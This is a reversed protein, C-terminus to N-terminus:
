ILKVYRARWYAITNDSNNWVFKITNDSITASFGTTAGGCNSIRYGTGSKSAIYKTVFGNNSNWQQASITIEWADGDTLTPLDFSFTNTNTVAATGTPIYNWVGSATIPATSGSAVTSTPHLNVPTVTEANIFAEDNVTTTTLIVTYIDGYGNSTTDEQFILVSGDGTPVNIYVENGNAKKVTYDTRSGLNYVNVYPTRTTTQIIFDRLSTQGGTECVVHFKGCVSSPLTLKVVRQSMVGSQYTANLLRATANQAVLQNSSSAGRPVVATLEKNTMAYPEWTDNTISALRLMPHFTLNTVTTNRYVRAQITVYDGDQVTFTAGSGYDRAKEVSNVYAVLWYKSASGDSPCGSIIYDGPTLDYNNHMLEGFADLTTESVTGNATLVGDSDYTWTIGRNVTGSSIYYPYKLLNKSGYVNVIDSIANESAEFKNGIEAFLTEADGYSMFNKDSM